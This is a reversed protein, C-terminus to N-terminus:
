LGFFQFRNMDHDYISQGSYAIALLSPIFPDRCPSPYKSVVRDLLLLDKLSEPSYFPHYTCHWHHIRVLVMMIM